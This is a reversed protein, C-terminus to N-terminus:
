IFYKKIKSKGIIIEHEIQHKYYYSISSAFNDYDIKNIDKNKFIILIFNCFKKKIEDYLSKIDENNCKLYFKRLLNLFLIFNNFDNFNPEFILFEEIEILLNKGLQILDYDEINNLFIYKNIKDEIVNLAVFNYINSTDSLSVDIIKKCEIIDIPKNEGFWNNDFLEFILYKIYYITKKDSLNINFIQSILNNINLILNPYSFGEIMKFNNLYNLILNKFEYNNYFECCEDYINKNENVYNKNEDHLNIILEYKVTADCDIWHLLSTSFTTENKSVIFTTSELKFNNENKLTKFLDDNSKVFSMKATHYKIQYTKKVIDDCLLTIDEYVIGNINGEEIIHTTNSQELLELLFIYILYQRQYSFGRAQKTADRNINTNNKFKPNILMEVIQHKTKNSYGKYNYQKCLERLKLVTLKEIEDKIFIM